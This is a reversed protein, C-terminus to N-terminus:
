KKVASIMPLTSDLYELIDKNIIFNEFLFKLTEERKELGKVTDLGEADSLIYDFLLVGGKNLHKHLEKAVILPEDLHEFVTTIIIIDFKKTKILNFPNDFICSKTYGDFDM